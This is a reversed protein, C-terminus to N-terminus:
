NNMLCFVNNTKPLRLLQCDTGPAFYKFSNNMLSFCGTIVTTNHPRNYENMQFSGKPYSLNCALQILYWLKM